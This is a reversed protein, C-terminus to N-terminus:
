RLSRLAELYLPDDSVTNHGAGPIVTLTAAGKPFRAYLQETSWRPILEDREAMLILTPATIEPARRGSEYKDTLLWRAPLYPFASAALDSLNEFPTVLVLRAVPRQSALRVAMGTGLSRGMAIIDRHEAVVRDFLLLADKQLAAESPTGSSGGYGRYNMAYIARDPFAAALLPLSASVDEANGGFYILAGPGEHPRLSVFIEAGEAALKLRKADPGGSNPHPYYILSRQSFFLAACLALYVIAFISLFGALIRM